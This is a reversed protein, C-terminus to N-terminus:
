AFKKQVLHSITTDFESNLLCFCDFLCFFGYCSCFPLQLPHVCKEVSDFHNTSRIYGQNTPNTIPLRRLKIFGRHSFITVTHQVYCSFEYQVADRRLGIKFRLVHGSSQPVSTRCFINGVPHLNWQVITHKCGFTPGSRYPLLCAPTNLQLSVTAWTDLHVFLPAVFVRRLRASQRLSYLM